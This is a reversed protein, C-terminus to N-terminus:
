FARVRVFGVLIVLGLVWVGLGVLSIWENRLVQRFSLFQHQFDPLDAWYQRSIASRKDASSSTKNSV